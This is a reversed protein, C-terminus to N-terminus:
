AGFQRLHHDLHKYLMKGWQEKTLKGFSPHSGWDEQERQEKLASLLEVLKEMEIDYNKDETRKLSKATPLNKKWPKDNYLSKKFLLSVLWMPKLGYDKRKLMINLSTQCHSLMQAPTMKGWQRQSDKNLNELRQEIETLTQLEFLSKM